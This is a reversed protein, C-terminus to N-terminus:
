AAELIKLILGSTASINCIKRHLIKNQDVRYVGFDTSIYYVAPGWCLNVRSNFPLPRTLHMDILSCLKIAPFRACTSKRRVSLIESACRLMKGWFNFIIVTNFIKITIHINKKWRWRKQRTHRRRSEVSIKKIRGQQICLTLMRLYFEQIRRSIDTNHLPLCATSSVLVWYGCHTSISTSIIDM